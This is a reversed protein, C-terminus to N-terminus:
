KRDIDCYRNQKKDETKHPKRIQDTSLKINVTELSGITMANDNICSFLYMTRRGRRLSMVQIQEMCWVLLTVATAMSVVPVVLHFIALCIDM